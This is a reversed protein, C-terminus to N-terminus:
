VKSMVKNALAAGAVASIGVVLDDLGLGAGRAPIGFIEAPMAPVIFKEALITGAVAGAGNVVLRAPSMGLIMM